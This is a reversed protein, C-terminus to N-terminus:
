RSDMGLRHLQTKVQAAAYVEQHFHIHVGRQSFQLFLIDVAQAALQTFFADRVGGHTLFVIITQADSKAIAGCAILGDGPQARTVAIQNDGRLASSAQFRHHGILAQFFGAFVGHLLVDVNQTVTNVLQTNGLRQYLTLAGVTDHNFQRTNLIGSPRFFNKASRRRQFETQNVAVNVAGCGSGTTDRAVRFHFIGTFTPRNHQVLAHNQGTVM